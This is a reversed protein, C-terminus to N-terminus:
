HPVNTAPLFLGSSQSVCSKLICVAQGRQAYALQEKKRQGVKLDYGFLLRAVQEHIDCGCVLFRRCERLRGFLVMSDRRNNSAYEGALVAHPGLPRPPLPERWRGAERARVVKREGRRAEERFWPCLMCPSARVAYRKWHSPSSSKATDGSFAPDFMGRLLQVCPQSRRCSNVSSVNFGGISRPEMMRLM